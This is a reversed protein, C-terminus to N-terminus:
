VGPSSVSASERCWVQGKVTGSITQAALPLSVARVAAGFQATATANNTVEGYVSVSGDGGAMGVLSLRCTDTGYASQYHWSSAWSDPTVDPAGEYFYLRTAM